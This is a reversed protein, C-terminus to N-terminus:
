ASVGYISTKVIHNRLSYISETLCHLNHIRRNKVSMMSTGGARPTEILIAPKNHTTHWALEISNVTLTSIRTCTQNASDYLGMEKRIYSGLKYALEKAVPLFQRDQFGIWYPRQHEGFAFSNHNDIFLDADAHRTALGVAIQTEPQTLAFGDRNLDINLHNERTYRDYGTPNIMPVLVIDTCWRLMSLRDDTRWNRCIDRMMMMVVIVAEHEVGHVGSVLVIKPPKADEGVYDGENGGSATFRPCQFHYEIIENSLEDTGLVTKTIYQPNEAVLQDYFAYVSQHTAYENARDGQTYWIDYEKAVKLFDNHLYPKHPELDKETLPLGVLNIDGSNNQTSPVIPIILLDESVFVAIQESDDNFFELQFNNDSNIRYLDESVTFFATESDDNFFEFFFSEIEKPNSLNLLIYGDESIVLPVEISVEDNNYFEAHIVNEAFKSVQTAVDNTYEKANSEAINMKETADAQAQTLPDYPSKALIEASSTAKYYDGGDSASLVRVSVGLPINAIDANAETLNSYSKFYGNATAALRGDLEGVFNLLKGQALQFKRQTINTGTFELINPLPM